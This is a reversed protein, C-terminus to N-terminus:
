LNLLFAACIKTDPALSWQRYALRSHLGFIQQKASATLYSNIEQSHYLILGRQMVRTRDIKPNKQVLKGVGKVSDRWELSYLLFFSYVKAGKKSFLGKLLVAGIM